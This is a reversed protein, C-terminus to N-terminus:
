CREGYEPIESDPLELAFDEPECGRIFTLLKEGESITLPTDPTSDAERYEPEPTEIDDMDDVKITAIIFLPLERHDRQPRPGYFFIM